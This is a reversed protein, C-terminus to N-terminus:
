IVMDVAVDHAEMPVYPVLQFDFCLGATRCGAERLRPILRDYFGGGRGLRNGRADFALGPIVALGIDSYRDFREGRPEAIGHAGTRLSDPGDYVAMRPIDGDIVPLLLRKRGLWRSLLAHTDVEDPLSYYLLVTTAAMFDPLSELRAVPASSASLLESASFGKKRERILSRLAKKSLDPM